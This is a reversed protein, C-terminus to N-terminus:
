YSFCSVVHFSVVFRFSRNSVFYVVLVFRSLSKIFYFHVLNSAWIQFEDCILELGLIFFFCLLGSLIPRRCRGSSNQM